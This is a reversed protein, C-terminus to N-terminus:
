LQGFAIDDVDIAVLVNSTDIRGTADRAHIRHRTPFTIGGVSVFGDFLHAAPAGAVIEVEYDHRALRGDRGFYLTQSACHSALYSPWEVHLRRLDRGEHRWPPLEHVRFGPLTLCFPQTLYTWMATGVFYALQLRTWPTAFSHGAFTERPNDLTELPTGDSARLEVRQPTFSSRTDPAGFPHHSVWEQHLAVDIRVDDLVGAQGKMPWLGGGQVLHASLFSHGRWCEIGGAAALVEALLGHPSEMTTADSM